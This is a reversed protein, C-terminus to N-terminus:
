IRKGKILKMEEYTDNDFIQTKVECLDGIYQYIALATSHQSITNLNQREIKSFVQDIDIGSEIFLNIPNSEPYQKTILSHSEWKIQKLEEKSIVIELDYAWPENEKWESVDFGSQNCIFITPRGNKKDRIAYSYASCLSHSFSQNENRLKLRNQGRFCITPECISSNWLQILREKSAYKLDSYGELQKLWITRSGLILSM